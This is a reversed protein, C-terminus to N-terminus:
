TSLFIAITKSSRKGSISARNSEEQGKKNKLHLKGFEARKEM